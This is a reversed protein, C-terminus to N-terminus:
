AFPRPRDLARVALLLAAGVLAALAGAAVIPITRRTVVIVRIVRPQHQPSLTPGANVSIREAVSIDDTTGSCLGTSLVGNQLAAFVVYTRGESFPIACTSGPGGGNSIPTKGPNNGKYLRDVDFTASTDDAATVTGVFVTSATLVQDAVDRVACTCATAPSAPAFLCVAITAAAVGIRRARSM